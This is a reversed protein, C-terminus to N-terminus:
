LASDGEGSEWIWAVRGCYEMDEWNLRIYARGNYRCVHEITDMYLRGQCGWEKPETVVVLQSPYKSMDARIQVIDGPQLDRKIM